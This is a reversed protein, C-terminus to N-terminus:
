GAVWQLGCLELARLGHRYGILIMTTDRHGYHSSKTGAVDLARERIASRSRRRSYM